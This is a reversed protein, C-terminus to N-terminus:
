NLVFQVNGIVVNQTFFEIENVLVQGDKVHMRIFLPFQLGGSPYSDM